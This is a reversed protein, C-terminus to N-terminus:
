AWTGGNDTSKVAAIAGGTTQYSLLLQRAREKLVVCAPKDDASAIPTAAANAVIKEAGWTAGRDSSVKFHIQSSVYWFALVQGTLDDQVLAPHTGTASITVASGWTLGEDGSVRLKIGSDVYAVLLRRSRTDEVICVDPETGTFRLAAARWTGVGIDYIDMWVGGAGDFVRYVRGIISEAMSINAGTGVDPSLCVRHMIAHMPDVVTGYNATNGEPVVRWEGDDTICSADRPMRYSGDARTTDHDAVTTKQVEITAGAQAKGAAAGIGQVGPGHLRLAHLANVGGNTGTFAHLRIRDVAYEAYIPTADSTSERFEPYLHFADRSNNFFANASYYVFGSVTTPASGTVAPDATNELWTLGCRYATAQRWETTARSWIQNLTDARVSDPFTDSATVVGARADMVIRGEGSVLFGRQEWRELDGDDDIRFDVDLGVAPNVAIWNLKDSKRFATISQIWVPGDTTFEFELEQNSAGIDWADLGWGWGGQSYSSVGAAYEREARTHSYDIGSCDDPICTDIEIDTWVGAPGCTFAWSKAPSGLARFVGSVGATTSKVRLKLYREGRFGGTHDFKRKASITTTGALKIGGDYTLTTGAGATWGSTSTLGPLLYEPDYHLQFALWKSRDAPLAIPCRWADGDMELAELGTTSYVFGLALTGDESIEGVTRTALTGSTYQYGGVLPAGATTFQYYKAHGTLSGPAHLDIPTGVPFETAVLTDTNGSSQEPGDLPTLAFAGTSFSLGAANQALTTLSLDLPPVYTMYVEADLINVGARKPRLEVREATVITRAYPEAPPPPGSDISEPTFDPAVGFHLGEIWCGEENYEAANIYKMDAVAGEVFGCPAQPPPQWVFSAQGNVSSSDVTLTVKAGATPLWAYWGVDASLYPRLDIDDEAHDARPRPGWHNGLYDFRTYEKCDACLRMEYEATMKVTIDTPRDPGLDKYYEQHLWGLTLDAYVYYNDEFPSNAGEHLGWRVECNVGVAADQWTFTAPHYSIPMGFASPAHWTCGAIMNVHKELDVTRTWNLSM